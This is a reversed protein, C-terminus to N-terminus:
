NEICKMKSEQEPTLKNALSNIKVFEPFAKNTGALILNNIEQNDIEKLVRM